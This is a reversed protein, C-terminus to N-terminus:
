DGPSTKAPREAEKELAEIRAKSGEDQTLNVNVGEEQLFKRLALEDVALLRTLLVDINKLIRDARQGSDALGEAAPLLADLMRDVKAYSAPMKELTEVPAAEVARELKALTTEAKDLLAPARDAVAAALRDLREVSRGMEAEHDALFGNARNLLEDARDIIREITQRKSTGTENLQKLLTELEDLLSGIKPAAPTLERFLPALAAFVEDPEVPSAADGIADGNELFPAAQSQPALEVYKEGLLSKARIRAKVDKRLGVTRDLAMTVRAKDFAVEIKAVRGVPVGAVMVYNDVVLGAASDFLAAVEVTEGGTRGQGLHMYMAVMLGVVVVFFLGLLIENKLRRPM